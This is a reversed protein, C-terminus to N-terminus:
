EGESPPWKLGTSQYLSADENEDLSGITVSFQYEAGLLTQRLDERVARIRSLWEGPVVISSEATERRMTLVTGDWDALGTFVAVDDEGSPKTGWAIMALRKGHIDIPDIM